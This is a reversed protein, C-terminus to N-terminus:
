IWGGIEAETLSKELKAYETRAARLVHKMQVSEGGDAALFAANLAINRINGGTVSLQALRTADLGDTPTNPPFVRRWIEARQGADPFPFQVFFRIRRQFATDLSSKLNTTLIALGPYCEMRQLLYSVEINAYRDHSDKVDSRKGFLADAEDFLLIVGGEEAADFVQRLNKETEGIYKSVVSSLDIRYVDLRLEHALVEAALTKGTGSPGAFLASIGLGRTNKAAFGWAQYVTARQRVHAAVEHLMQEQAPPLVLDQWNVTPTIRQALEDLRPRAQMRCADWLINGLDQEQGQSLNGAVEAYAARITLPNLNFQAVLRNVQGNLQPGLEALTGEWLVRQEETTPKHVDFSVVPRQPLHMRERSAVFLFSNVREMFRGITHARAQDTMEKTDYDLFLVGGCFIVEREWLRMLTEMESPVSPVLQAPMISLTVGLIKCVKAAIARKSTPESGCLQVVPSMGTRQTHSWVVSIQEALKEHSSVLDSVDLLPEIMGVLREDVSETGALYHLIREDIRLPCLTLARGDGVEILRWRRLAAHPAIADWHPEPLAALALSFTPYGRQADGVAATCLGGFDGSFEMCACMLLIDREFKSLGFVKCVKDLASPGPMAAAADQLDQQRVYEQEEVESQNQSRLTYREIMGRVVAVAALLYRQNADYWDIATRM